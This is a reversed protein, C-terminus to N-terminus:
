FFNMSFGLYSTTLFERKFHGALLFIVQESSDKLFTVIFQRERLLSKKEENKTSKLQDSLQRFKQLESQWERKSTLHRLYIIQETRQQEM